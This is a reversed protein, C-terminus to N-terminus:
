IISKIPQSYVLVEMLSTNSYVGKLRAAKISECRCKRESARMLDYMSMSRRAMCYKCEVSLM